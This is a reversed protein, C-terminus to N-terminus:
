NKHGASTILEEIENLYFEGKQLLLGISLKSKHNWNQAQMSTKDLKALFKM